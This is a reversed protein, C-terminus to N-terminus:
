ARRATIGPEDGLIMKEIAELYADSELAKIRAELSDPTEAPNLSIAKQFLITGTDYEADVIHVSVGSETEGAAIVADHVRRGYMGQGGFKPLLAPHSNIMKGSYLSLTKPGIKRMFGALVVLEARHSVLKDAIEVDICDSGVTKKNIVYCPVGYHAAVTLVPASANNTILVTAEVSVASTQRKEMIKQFASGGHSALFGIRVAPRTPQM